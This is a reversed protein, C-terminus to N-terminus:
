QLAICRWSTESL